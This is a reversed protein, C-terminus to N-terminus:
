KMDGKYIDSSSLAEEFDYSESGGEMIGYDYFDILLFIIDMDSMKRIKEFDISQLLQEKNSKLVKQSYLLDLVDSKEM